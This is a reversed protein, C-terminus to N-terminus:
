KPLVNNVLKIFDEQANSWKYRSAVELSKTSLKERRDPDNKLEIIVKAFELPDFTVLRAGPTWTEWVREPMPEVMEMADGYIERRAGHDDVGLVPVGCAMSEGVPLGWGEIQSMDLYLDFCNLMSVFDYQAFLRGRADPGDPPHGKMEKAQQLTNSFSEAGAYYDSDKPIPKWLMMDSVGYYEALERLMYGDMRDEDANTHSYFLIGHDNNTSRLIRATEIIMPFGKTRKNVGVSGIVFYQDWGILQRLMQRDEGSYREFPSHDLGHNIVTTPIDPFQARVTDQATQHYLAVAGGLAVVRRMGEAHHKRLPKNEIPTYVVVPPTYEKGHRYYTAAGNEVIGHMYHGINGPDTIIFIVDPKVKRLFFGFTNHALQDMPSTPIFAYPLSDEFDRQDDLLGLCHVEFGAEHFGLLVQKNVVGFGTFKKPSDGIAAIVIRKSIDVTSDLDKEEM